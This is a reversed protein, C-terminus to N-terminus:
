SRRAPSISSRRWSRRASRDPEGAGRRLARPRQAPHLPALPAAAEPAGHDRPGQLPRLPGPRRPPGARRLVREDVRQPLGLGEPVAGAHLPDRGQDARRERRDRRRGGHAGAAPPPRGQHHRGPPPRAGVAVVRQDPLHRPREHVPAEARLRRHGGRLQREPDPLRLEGGHLVRAPRARHHRRGEARRLDRGVAGPHLAEGAHRADDKALVSPRSRARRTRSARAVPLLQREADTLGSAVTPVPKGKM